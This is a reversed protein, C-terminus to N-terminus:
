KINAVTDSNLACTQAVTAVQAQKNAAAFARVQSTAKQSSMGLAQYDRKAALLIKNYRAQSITNQDVAKQAKIIQRELREVTSVSAKLGKDRVVLDLEILDAM